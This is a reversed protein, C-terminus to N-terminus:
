SDLQECIENFFIELTERVPPVHNLLPESYMKKYDASTISSLQKAWNAVSEFDILNSFARNNLYTNGTTDGWYLPVTDCVYAEVLKETVYGPFLDNEFCLMYEYNRGIEYKKDVKLNSIGGYLDVTFYKSLSNIAATRMPHPGAIVCISNAKKAKPDKRSKTLDNTEYSTGLRVHSNKEYPDLSLYILPFYANRGDFKDRDFSLFGDFPLDLPPRINEGTFWINLVGDITMEEESNQHMRLLDFKRRILNKQEKRPFVSHFVIKRIGKGSLKVLVEPDKELFTKFINPESEFGPWFNKFELTIDYQMQTEKNM